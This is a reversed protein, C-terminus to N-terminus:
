PEPQTYGLLALISFDDCVRLASHFPRATALSRGAGVRHIVGGLAPNPM